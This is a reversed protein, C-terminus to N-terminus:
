RLNTSLGEFSTFSSALNAVLSARLTRAHLRAYTESNVLRSQLTSLAAATLFARGTLVTGSHSFHLIPKSSMRKLVLASRSFCCLSALLTIPRIEERHVVQCDQVTGGSTFIKRFRYAMRYRSHARPYREKTAEPYDGNVAARVM